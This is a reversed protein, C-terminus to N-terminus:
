YAGRGRIVRPVTRLLISIDLALTWRHVYREELRVRDEYGLENRGSVGWLGTLGPRMTLVAPLHPGFLPLEEEVIPRPGVLSMQGLLVNVFQPLEDLSYKRLLRGLRTVRPDNRLKRLTAWERALDESTQLTGILREDADRAMTRFKFIRFPVGSRGVRRQVFIPHGASEVALALTLVILLPSLLALALTAGVLDIARKAARSVPSALPPTTIAADGFSRSASPEGAVLEGHGPLLRDISFPTSSGPQEM